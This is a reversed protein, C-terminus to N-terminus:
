RANKPGAEISKVAVVYAAKVDGAALCQSCTTEDEDEVKTGSPFTVKMEHGQWCKFTFEIPM